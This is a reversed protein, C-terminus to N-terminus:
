RRLDKYIEILKDPTTRIVWQMFGQGTLALLAAVPERYVAPWSMVHLVLDTFIWASFVAALVTILARTPSHWPSTLLKFLAAGAVALWFRYDSNFFSMSDSEISSAAPLM